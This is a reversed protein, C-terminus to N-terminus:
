PVPITNSTKVKIAFEGCFNTQDNQDKMDIKVPLRISRPMKPM